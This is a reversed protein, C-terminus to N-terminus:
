AAKKAKAPTGAAKATADGAAALNEEAVAVIQRTANSINEYASNAATFASKAAAFAAESGAPANEAAQDLASAVSETAAAFRTEVFKLVDKQAQSFVEYCSRSYAAFNEVSPQVLTTQLKLLQQFERVGAAEGANALSDVLFSRAAHLTLAVLREGGALTADALTNFAELNAKLVNALPDHTAHPISSM